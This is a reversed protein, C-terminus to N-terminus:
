EFRRRRRSILERIFGLIYASGTLIDLVPYVLAEIVRAHKKLRYTISYTLYWVGEILIMSIVRLYGMLTFFIPTTIIVLGIIWAILMMITIKLFQPEKHKMLFLYHGRGYNHVQKLLGRLTNRHLHYVKIRPSCLIKYGKKCLRWELDLEDYGGRYEEDFLGVETLVEKKFAMNNGSPPRILPMLKFFNNKTIIIERPYRIFIPIIGRESYRMLLNTTIHPPLEVCGGAAVHEKLAERINNVWDKEVICDGDTFAIISGSAMKIGLNRAYNLGSKKVRILKVFPYNSIITPTSDTSNDIVIVEIEKDHSYLELLSEMLFTITRECNKTPIIISVLQKSKELLL